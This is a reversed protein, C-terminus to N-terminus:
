PELCWRKSTHSFPPGVREFRPQASCRRSVYNRLNEERTTSPADSSGFMRLAYEFRRNEQEQSGYSAGRSITGVCGIGAGVIGAEVTEGSHRRKDWNPIIPLLPPEISMARFLFSRGGEIGGSFAVESVLGAPSM